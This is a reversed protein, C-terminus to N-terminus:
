RYFIELVWDLDLVMPTLCSILNTNINYDIGFRQQIGNVFLMSLHPLAPTTTLNIQRTNLITSNIAFVERLGTTGGSPQIQSLLYTILSTYQPSIPNAGGVILATLPIPATGSPLTFKIPTKGQIHAEYYSAQEGEENCWLRVEFSGALNTRITKTSELIFRNGKFSYMYFHFSVEQGPLPIESLDYVEGIVLRTTMHIHANIKTLDIKNLTFRKCFFFRSM